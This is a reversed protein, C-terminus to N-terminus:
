GHTVHHRGTDFVSFVHEDDLSYYVVKGEKRYKVLKEQKLIRLQHSIASQSMDLLNALDCVCLEQEKLVSIIRLRNYDGFAKFFSALGLYEDNDLMHKRASEVKEPHIVDCDCIKM